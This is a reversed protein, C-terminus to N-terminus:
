RRRRVIVAYAMIALGALAAYTAPEPVASIDGIRVWGSGLDTVTWTSGADNHDLVTYGLSGTGDLTSGTILANTDLDYYTSDALVAALFDNTLGVTVSNAGTLTLTDGATITDSLSDLTLLVNAEDLILNDMNSSGVSSWTAGDSVTLTSILNAGDDLFVGVANTGAGQVIISAASGATPLMGTEYFVGSGGVAQAGDKFTVTMETSYLTENSSSSRILAGTGSTTTGGSITVSAPLGSDSATNSVVVIGTREGYVDSDTLTVNFGQSVIIGAGNTGVGRFIGDTATMTGSTGHIAANAEVYAGTGVTTSSNASSVSIGIGDLVKINANTGWDVVAGDSVSVGRAMNTYGSPPIFGGVIEVQLHDTVTINTGSGTGYIGAVNTAEDGVYMKITSNSGLSLQGGSAASAGRINNASIPTIESGGTISIANATVTADSQARIGGAGSIVSSNIGMNIRSGSGNADVSYGSTNNTRTVAISGNVPSIAISGGNQASLSTGTTTVTDDSDLTLVTGNALRTSTYDAARLGSPVLLPLAAATALVAVNAYIARLRPVDRIINKIMHTKM